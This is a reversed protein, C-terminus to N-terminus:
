DTSGFVMTGYGNIYASEVSNVYHMHGFILYDQNAFIEDLTSVIIINAHTQNILDLVIYAGNTWTLEAGAIVLGSGSSHTNNGVYDVVSGYFRIITDSGATYWDILISETKKYLMVQHSGVSADYIGQEMHNLSEHYIVEKRIWEKKDYAAM